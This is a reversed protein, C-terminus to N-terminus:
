TKSKKQLEVVGQLVGGSLDFDFIKLKILFSFMLPATSTKHCAGIVIKQPIGAKHMIPFSAICPFIQSVKTVWWDPPALLIHANRGDALKKVAPQLDVVLYCFNRTLKHIDQLVADISSIEIHELVDLCTLIDSETNPKISYQKVAPDYGQVSISEPLENLLRQTLAGKGTGYDLVSNCVGLEHMRVLAKPLNSALGAGDTRNGFAKNDQHLAANLKRQADSIVEKM